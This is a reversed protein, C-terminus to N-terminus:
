LFLENDLNNPTDLFFGPGFVSDDVFTFGVWAPLMDDLMTKAKSICDLYEGISMWSPPTCVVAITAIGSYWGSVVAHAYYQNNADYTGGHFTATIGTSGLVVTSATTVPGTFTVGGDSSWNFTAVTLAGGTQVDIQIQYDASPTGTMTVLPPTTGFKQVYWGGPWSSLVGPDTTPNHYIESLTVPAIAASVRDFVESYTVPVGARAIREAVIARRDYETSAPDPTLGLVKEWRSLMVTLKSPTFQNALLENTNWVDAIARAIAMNEVWVPSEATVDYATGRASNLSELITQVVPKSGGYREPNVSYGGYAPM